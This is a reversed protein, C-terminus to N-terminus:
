KYEEKLEKYNKMIYFCDKKSLVINSFIRAYKIVKPVDFMNTVGSKQVKLYSKFKERSVDVM